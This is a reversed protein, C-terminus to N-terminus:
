KGGRVHIAIDMTPPVDENEHVHWWYGEGIAIVGVKDEMKPKIYKKLLEKAKM